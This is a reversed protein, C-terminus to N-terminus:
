CSETATAQSGLCQAKSTWTHSMPALRTGKCQRSPVWRGAAQPPKTYHGSEPDLFTPELWWRGEAHLGAESVRRSRPPQWTTNPPIAAAAAAAALPVQRTVAALAAPAARMLLLLMLLLMLLLPLLLLLRHSVWQDLFTPVLWRPRGGHLAAAYKRRSALQLPTPMQPAASGPQTAPPLPTRWPHVRSPCLSPPRLQRCYHYPLCDFACPPLAVRAAAPPVLAVHRLRRSARPPECHGRDLALPNNNTHTAM